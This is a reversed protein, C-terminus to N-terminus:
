DAKKQGSKRRDVQAATQSRSKACAVEEGGEEQQSGINRSEEQAGSKEPSNGNRGGSM